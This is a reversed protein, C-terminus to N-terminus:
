GAIKSQQEKSILIDVLQNSGYASIFLMQTLSATM